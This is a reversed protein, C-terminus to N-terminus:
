RKSRSRQFRAALQCRAKTRCALAFRFIRRARDLRPGIRAFSLASNRPIRSVQLLVRRFVDRIRDFELERIAARLLERARARARTDRQYLTDFTFCRNKRANHSGMPVISSYRISESEHTCISSSEPGIQPIWDVARYVRLRARM